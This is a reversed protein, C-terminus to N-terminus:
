QAKETAPAAGETATVEGNLAVAYEEDNVLAIGPLVPANGVRRTVKVKAEVSLPNNLVWGSIEGEGVIRMRKDRHEVYIKAPGRASFAGDAGQEQFTFDFEVKRIWPARQVNHVIQEPTLEPPPRPVLDVQISTLKKDKVRFEATIEGQANTNTGRLLTGAPVQKATKQPSEAAEEAAQLALTHAQENADRAQFYLVNGAVLILSGIITPVLIDAGVPLKRSARPKTSAPAPSESTALVPPASKPRALPAVPATETTPPNAPAPSQVPAPAASSPAAPEASATPTPASLEPSLTLDVVDESDSSPSSVELLPATAPGLDFETSTGTKVPGVAAVSEVVADIGQAVSSLTLELAAAQPATPLPPPTAAPPTAPTDDFQLDLVAEPSPARPPEPTKMSPLSSVESARQTIEVPIIPANDSEETALPTSPAVSELAPFLPASGAPLVELPLESSELPQTEVLPPAPPPLPEPEPPLLSETGGAAEADEGAALSVMEALDTPSDDLTLHYVPAEKEEPPPSSPQLISELDFTIETTGSPTSTPLAAPLPRVILVKGGAKKLLKYLAVLEGETPATRIVSEPQSLVTQVESAPMDLDAIFAGKLRRLTDPSDDAPGQFVLKFENAESM